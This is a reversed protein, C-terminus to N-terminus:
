PGFFQIDDNHSPSNHTALIYLSRRYLKEGKDQTYGNNSISRWIRPPMYPKVSPGGIKRVLLGSNAALATDRIAYPHM